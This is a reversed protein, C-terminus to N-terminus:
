SKGQYIPTGDIKPKEFYIGLLSPPQPKEQNAQQRLALLYIDQLLLSSIAKKGKLQIKGSQLIM